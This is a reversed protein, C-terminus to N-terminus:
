RGQFVPPRRQAFANRGEAYDASAFCVAVDHAVRARVTAGPDIRMSERIAMKAARLTLPANAAVADVAVGVSEAFTEEDFVAHVLGVRAAEEATYTRATFFLETANAPGLIAVARQMGDFAYGLGLRAAPMRFVASAAAFRLDCSLALGIGGGFCYGQIAAIVPHRCAQLASQARDVAEDYAHIAAADARLANFESIDAGSVFARSAEGRLVLARVDDRADLEAVQDALARWMGLSMANLREVNAITLHAVGARLALRITGAAM